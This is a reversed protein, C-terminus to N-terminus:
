KGTQASSSLYDWYKRMIRDGWQCCTMFASNTAGIATMCVVVYPHDAMVVAADNFETEGYGSKHAITTYGLQAGRNLAIDVFNYRNHTAEEWLWAGEECQTRFRYIELWILALDRPSIETWIKGERLRNEVGLQEMLRNYGDVGYYDTLMYYAANDSQYILYHLVERLPVKAGVGLQWIYGTGFSRHKSQFVLEDDFSLNGKAIERLVFLAYGAKITCAPTFLDSANYGFSAGTEIDVAYFGIRFASNKVVREFSAVLDSDPVFDTNNVTVEDKKFEDRAHSDYTPDPLYFPYVEGPLKYGDYNPITEGPEATEKLAPVELTQGKMEGFDACSSLASVSLAALLILCVTKKVKEGADERKFIIWFIIDYLIIRNM